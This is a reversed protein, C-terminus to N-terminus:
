FKVAVTGGWERGDGVYGDFSGAQAVSKFITTFYTKDTCNKCWLSLTWRGEDLKLGARANLLYYGKQREMPDLESATNRSSGYLIDSGVFGTTRESLVPFEYLAGGSFSWLPANTLHKGGLNAVLTPAGLADRLPLTVGDDYRTEAYTIGGHLNLGKVPNLTGELEFGQTKAGKVNVVAYALGDFVLIQFNDYNAHFGTLNLTARDNWFKTKIGLEYSDVTEPRVTPDLRTPDVGNIGAAARDLNIAGAKYGHAFNAYTMLGPTWKYQASASGSWAYHGIEANYRGSSGLWNPFFVLSPSTDAIRGGGQKEDYGYRVGGTVSLKETLNLGLQGFASYSRAQTGYVGDSGTGPQFTAAIPCLAPAVLCFYTGTQTGNHLHYGVDIDENTFYAGALWDLSKIAPVATSTGSLRFEETFVRDKLTQAQTLIDVGTYDVDALLGERFDRWAMINTLKVNEALDVNLEASLGWDDVLTNGEPGNLAADRVKPNAPDIFPQGATVSLFDIAPQAPGNFVRLAAGGHEDAHAYDGIIRLEIGPQPKYLAQGRFYYRDKDNITNKTSLNTVFGDRAFYGGSIRVDLVNSVIPINTWANVKRM